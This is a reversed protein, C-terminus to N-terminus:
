EHPPGITRISFSAQARQFLCVTRYLPRRTDSLLLPSMFPSVSRLTSVRRVEEEGDLDVALKRKLSPKQYLTSAYSNTLVFARIVCDQDRLVETFHSVVNGGGATM